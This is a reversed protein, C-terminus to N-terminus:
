REESEDIPHEGRAWLSTQRAAGTDTKGMPNWKPGGNGWRHLRSSYRAKPLLAYLLVLAVLVASLRTM